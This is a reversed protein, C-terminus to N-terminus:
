VPLQIKFVTGKDLQSTIKLHGDLDKIRTYINALGFSKQANSFEELDEPVYFGKGDDVM